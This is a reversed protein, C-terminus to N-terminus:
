AVAVLDGCRVVVPGSDRGLSCYFGRMGDDLFALSEKLVDPEVTRHEHAFGCFPRCPHAVDVQELRAKACRQADLLILGGALDDLGFRRNSAVLINEAACGDWLHPGFRRRMEAYHSTFGISIGNRGDANKTSPHARHHVDFTEGGDVRATIGLRTILLTEVSAIPDPIYKRHPKEGVKLPSRQIQLRVIPGIITAM